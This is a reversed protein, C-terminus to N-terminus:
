PERLASYRIRTHTIYFYYSLFFTLFIEEKKSEKKHGRHISRLAALDCLKKDSCLYCLYFPNKRKREHNIDRIDRSAKAQHAKRIIDTTLSM